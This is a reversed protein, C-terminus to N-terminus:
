FLIVIGTFGVAFGLVSGTLVERPTHANLMLRSSMVLGAAAILVVTPVLLVGSSVKNLPLLIGIIGWIAASHISVKYFLTIVAAIVVLFSIIMLTFTVNPVKVKWYFLFTVVCYLISIFLFPLTRQKREPMSLNEVTGTAKFFLFNLAPLVFTMLFILGIFGLSPRIPQLIIPVYFSFLLFLYTTMLLPHFVISIIKAVGKVNYNKELDRL